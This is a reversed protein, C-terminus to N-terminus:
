PGHRKGRLPALLGRVAAGELLRVNCSAALATAENVIQRIFRSGITGAFEQELESTVREQLVSLPDLDDTTFRRFTSGAADPQSHLAAQNRPQNSGSTVAPLALNTKM